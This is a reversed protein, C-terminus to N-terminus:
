GWVLDDFSISTENQVTIVTDSESVGGDNLTITTDTLDDNIASSIGNNLTGSIFNAFEVADLTGDVVNTDYAALIATFGSLDITDNDVNAEWDTITNSDNNPNFVFTDDGAGGALTDTGAGGTIVESSAGGTISDDGFGTTLAHDKIVVNDILIQVTNGVPTSFEFKFNNATTASSELTFRIDVIASTAGITNFVDADSLTITNTDLLDNTFADRLNINLQSGGINAFLTGLTFSIDYQGAQVTDITETSITQGGNMFAWQDGSPTLPRNGFTESVVGTAIGPATWDTINGTFTGVDPSEFSENSPTRSAGADSGTININMADSVTVQTTGQSYTITGDGNDLSNTWGNDLNVTDGANGIVTLSHIGAVLPTITDVVAQNLTLTNDGNGAGTIDVEEFNSFKAAVGPATLDVTVTSASTALALTDTDAGGDVATDLVDVIVRDNGAGGALTDAGLGGILTDAGGLGQISDNGAGGDLINAVENGTITDNGDGGIFNVFNEIVIGNVEGPSDGLVVLYDIVGEGLGPPAISLTNSFGAQASILQLSPALAHSKFNLHIPAGTEYRIVGVNQSFMQFSGVGHENTNDTRVFLTQLADQNTFKITDTSPGRGDFTRGNAKAMSEVILRDTSPNAGEWLANYGSVEIKSGVVENDLVEKSVFDGTDSWLFRFGEAGAGAKV